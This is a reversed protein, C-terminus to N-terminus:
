VDTGREVQEKPNKANRPIYINNNLRVYPLKDTDIWIHITSTGVGFKVAAEEISMFAEILEDETYFVEDELGNM